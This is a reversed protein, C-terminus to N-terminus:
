MKAIVPDSTITGSCKVYMPVSSRYDMDTEIREGEDLMGLLGMKFIM